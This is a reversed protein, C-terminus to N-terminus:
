PNIKTDLSIKDSGYDLPFTMAVLAQEFFDLVPDLMLDDSPDSKSIETATGDSYEIKFTMKM